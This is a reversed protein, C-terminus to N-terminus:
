FTLFSFDFFRSKKFIVPLFAFIVQSKQIKLMIKALNIKM